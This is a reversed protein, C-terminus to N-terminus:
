SPASSNSYLSMATSNNRSATSGNQVVDSYKIANDKISLVDFSITSLTGSHLKITKEIDAVHGILSLLNLEEPQHDPLRDPDRAVFDPIKEASDLIKIAEMIDNIRAVSVPCNDMSKREPYKGLLKIGSTEPWLLRNAQVIDSESYFNMIMKKINEITSCNVYHRAYTLLENVITM